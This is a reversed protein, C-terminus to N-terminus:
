ETFLLAVKDDWFLNQMEWSDSPRYFVFTYRIATNELKEIYTFKLFSQGIMKQSIFEYGISAGYRAKVTVRSTITQMVMTDLENKSVKWYPILLDIGGKYDESIFKKMASEVLAKAAEETKIKPSPAQDSAQLLFPVVLILSAKTLM